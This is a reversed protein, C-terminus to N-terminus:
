SGDQATPAVCVRKEFLAIGDRRRSRKDPDEKEEALRARPRFIQVLFADDTVVNQECM